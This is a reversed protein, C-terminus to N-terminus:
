VVAPSQISAEKDTMVRCVIGQIELAIEPAYNYTLTAHNQKQDTLMGKV